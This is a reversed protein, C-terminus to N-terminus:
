DEDQGRREPQWDGKTGFTLDFATVLDYYAAGPSTPIDVLRADLVQHEPLVLHIVAELGDWNLASAGGIPGIPPIGPIANSPTVEWRVQDDTLDEFEWKLTSLAPGGENPTPVGQGCGSFANGPGPRVHGHAIFDQGVGQQFEGDGNADIRLQIRPVGSGCTHPTVFAHHFNLQHDLQWLQVRRFERVVGGVGPEVVLVINTPNEPDRTVRGTGWTKFQSGSGLNEARRSEEFSTSGETPAPNKSDCSFLLPFLLGTALATRLLTM